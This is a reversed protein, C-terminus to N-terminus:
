IEVYDSPTSLVGRADVAVVRYSMGKKAGNLPWHSEEVVSLLNEESASFGGAEMSGYVRYAVARNGEGNSSWVLARGKGRGKVELGLPLRPGHPVFSGVESWDGWVGKANRARVRWYYREDPNLLNPFEAQWRTGGAYSTRGVYRDFTPCVCWRFDAYRSVQIHYEDVKASGGKPRKWRFEFDLRNVDAGDKPYVLEPAGPPRISHEEQWGYTVRVKRRGRNDDRYAITNKGCFLSPLSRTACQIDTDFRIADLGVADPRSGAWMAVKIYYSYCPGMRWVLDNEERWDNLAPNLLWDLEICADQRSAFDQGGERAHGGAIWVSRWNKGDKSFLVELGDERSERRVRLGVRAGPIAYPSEVKWVVESVRGAKGPRLAGGRGSKEQAVNKMGEIGKLCLPSRLDPRYVLKGNSYRVEPHMRRGRVVQKGVNDWYRVLKEGPRLRLGMTHPPPYKGPAHTFVGANDTWTGGKNPPYVFQRGRFSTSYYENEPMDRGALGLNRHSRHILDTDRALDESGAVTKNDRKLFYVMQDTDLFCWDGDAYAEFIDHGCVRGRGYGDVSSLGGLWIERAKLRVVEALRCSVVANAICGDFGYVNFLKVPDGIDDSWSLGARQDYLEEAVFRWVGMAKEGDSAGSGVGGLIERAMGEVSWWDREGNAVVWPNVVETEGLNEIAVYMNPEFVQDYPPMSGGPGSSYTEPQKTVTNSEDLYGGMNVTFGQGKRTLVVRREKPARPVVVCVPEGEKWWGPEPYLYPSNWLVAGYFYRKGPELDAADVYREGHVVGVEEYPGSVRRARYIRAGRCGQLDVGLTVCNVAAKVVKLRLM